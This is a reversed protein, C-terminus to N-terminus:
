ESKNEWIGAPLDLRKMMELCMRGNHYPCKWEDALNQGPVPNGQIDLLGHWEGGHARDIVREQIWGWVAEAAKWYDERGEFLQAGNTFGIVAEAQVWWICRRDQVGRECENYLYHGNFATRYVQETLDAIIPLMKATMNEDNLVELGRTLLWATEIDHGYSHLDILSRYDADFFVEQRHLVPNYMESRFLELIFLLKERVKEETSVRYLETYAEFVHLLTNMTRSAMVGNESLKENSCPGFDRAFAELYGAEDRCRSEITEMLDKAMALAEKDGQAEYYASLGYIAFAQCYTHKTTDSPKGDATVSWLVGGYERDLFADRLFLFARKADALLKEEPKDEKKLALSARSFFWLIRSNLICGKDAKPDPIGNEDVLGLYGGNKEDAIREWFPIIDETMHKVMQEKISM